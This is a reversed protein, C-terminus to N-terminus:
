GGLAFMCHSLSPEGGVQYMWFEHTPTFPAEEGRAFGEMVGYLHDFKEEIMPPPRLARLEPLAEGMMRRAAEEYTVEAAIPILYLPDADPGSPLEMEVGAALLEENLRAHASTCIERVQGFYEAEASAVFEDTYREWLAISTSDLLPYKANPGNSKFWFMLEFDDQHHSSVWDAFGLWDSVAMSFMEIEIVRNIAGDEVFVTHRGKMTGLGQDRTLKNSFWYDCSVVTRNRALLECGRGRYEQGVAGYWEHLAPFMEPEVGQFDAYPGFLSAAAGGDGRVWAELFSEAVEEASAFDVFLSDLTPSSEESPVPAPTPLMTLGGIAVAFAVVIPLLRPRGPPTREGRETDPREVM